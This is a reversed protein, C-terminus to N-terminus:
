ARVPRKFAHNLEALTVSSGLGASGFRFLDRDLIPNLTTASDKLASRPTASSSASNSISKFAFAIGSSASCASFPSVFCTAIWFLEPGRSISKLGIFM